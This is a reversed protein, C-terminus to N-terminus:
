FMLYFNSIFVITVLYRHPNIEYFLIGSQGNCKRLDLRIRWQKEIWFASTFRNIREHNPTVEFYGYISQRYKFRFTRLHPIHQQILQEWRDANLYAADRHTKFKLMKLQSSISKIFIEFEDFLLYGHLISIHTLNSLTMRHM